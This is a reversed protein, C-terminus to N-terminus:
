LLEQRDEEVRNIFNDLRQNTENYFRCCGRIIIFYNALIFLSAVFWWVSKDQLHSYNILDQVGAVVMLISSILSLWFTNVTLKERKILVIILILAWALTKISELIIYIM